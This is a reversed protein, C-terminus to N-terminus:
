NLAFKMILKQSKQPQKWRFYAQCKSPFLASQIHSIENNEEDKQAKKKKENYNRGMGKWAECKKQAGENGAEEDKTYNPKKATQM